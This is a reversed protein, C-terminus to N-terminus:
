EGMDKESFIRAEYILVEADEDKWGDWGIGAKDRACHGIFEEKTWGTTEAVQPLFTGSQSGKKIYIGHRGLEFENISKIKKMPSLVSIEIDIEEIEPTTVASFRPDKTAASVAIQQITKYLPGDVNFRGICGRLKGHKHLTVFAGYDEKLALPLHSPDIDPIIQGDLYHIISERAIQLLKEKEDKTLDFHEMSIKNKSNSSFVISYYGVVRDKNGARSDGSNQYDIVSIDIDDMERTIFLVSLASTWGCMSTSLQPINEHKHGRTTKILERPDNKLIADATEKDVKKATAYSPYHSFDSSIIFLNHKNFYPKLANGIQESIGPSYSGILVPVINVDKKMAYQLFPLIVEIGHEEHHARPEFIFCDHNNILETATSIDVRVNGLPTIYHGQNYISAGNFALTHSSGIIFVHEYEQDKNIQNIGSAAVTGSFVYGAHPVIIALANDTQKDEAKSFLNSLMFKLKDPHQPYFKGAAYPKRDKFKLSDNESPIVHVEEQGHGCSPNIFLMFLIIVAMIAREFM